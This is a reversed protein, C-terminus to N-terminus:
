EGPQSAPAAQTAPVGQQPPLVRLRVRARRGAETPAFGPVLTASRQQQEQQSLGFMAQSGLWTQLGRFARGPITDGRAEDVGKDRVAEVTGEPVAGGRGAAKRAGPSEVEATVGRTPTLLEPATAAARLPWAVCRLWRM